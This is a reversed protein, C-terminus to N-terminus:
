VLSVLSYSDSEIEHDIKTWLLRVCKLSITNLPITICNIIRSVFIFFFLLFLWSCLGYGELPVSVFLFCVIFEQPEDNSRLIYDFLSAKTRYRRIGILCLTAYPLCTAWLAVIAWRFGIPMYPRKLLWPLDSSFLYDLSMTKEMICVSLRFNYVGRCLHWPYLYVYNM